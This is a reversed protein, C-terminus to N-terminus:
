AKSARWRLMSVFVVEQAVRETANFPQSEVLSKKKIYLKPFGVVKRRAQPVVWVTQLGKGEVWQEVEMDEERRMISLYCPLSDSSDLYVHASTQYILLAFALLRGLLWCSLLLYCISLFPRV